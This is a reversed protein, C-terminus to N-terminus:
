DKLTGWKKKKNAEQTTREKLVDWNKRKRQKRNRVNYYWWNGGWKILECACRSFFTFFDLYFIWCSVFLLLLRLNFQTSSCATYLTCEYHVRNSISYRRFFWIFLLLTHAHPAPSCASLNIIPAFFTFKCLGSKKEQSAKTRITNIQRPAIWKTFESYMKRKQRNQTSWALCQSFSCPDTAGDGSRQQPSKYFNIQVNSYLVSYAIASISRTAIIIYVCVIVAIRLSFPVFHYISTCLHFWSLDNFNLKIRRKGIKEEEHRFGFYVCM